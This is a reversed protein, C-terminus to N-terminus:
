PVRADTPRPATGGARALVFPAVVGVVAIILAWVSFRSGAPFHWWAILNLGAGIWLPLRVAAGFSRVAAGGRFVGVYTAVILMTIILLEGLKQQFFPDTLADRGGSMSTMTFFHVAVEFAMWGLFLAVVLGVIVGWCGLLKNNAM